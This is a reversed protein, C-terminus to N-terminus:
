SKVDLIAEFISVFLVTGPDFKNESRDGVWAGRGRKSRLPMANDRGKRAAELMTMAAHQLDNGEKIAKSFSEAAPHLVDVITKDGPKAKGVEQVGRDAAYLIRIISDPDLSSSGVIEKGARMLAIATLTGLTSPATKNIAKGANIFFLGLDNVQPNSSLYESLGTAGKSATIGTDGDGMAADLQNLEERISFVRDIVREMANLIQEKEIMIAM